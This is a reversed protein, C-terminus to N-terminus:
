LESELLGQIAMWGGVGSIAVGGYITPGFAQGGFSNEGSIGGATYYGAYLGQVPEGNPQLVQMKPNVRLGCTTKCISGGNPIGYYPPNELPILWEPFYPIPLETDEGTACLENWRDVAGVVVDPELGMLVALEEITDAKQIAGRDVAQQFDGEWDTTCYPNDKTLGNPKLPVRSQDLGMTREEFVDLSKKFNSDLIAYTRHGITSMWSAANTLDGMSFTKMDYGPQVNQGFEVIHFPLRAGSKNIRLWPNMTVQRAGNWFYHWYAGDGKGWYDDLGGEWNSFSNYGSTDAGAGIGMRFCDGTHTPFPGGQVSYMYATPTYQELLDLNYGFGGATFIVGLNAKLFLEANDQDSIQAGIIRDGDKVLAKCETQLRVDAGNDRSNKELAEVTPQNGLVNNRTGEAIERQVFAAGLCVWDVGPQVQIWEAWEVGRTITELLLDYDVSYHNYQQYRTAAAFPDYKDGPWSYGREIQAKTGGPQIMNGASHRACGGTLDSKELLAVSYGNEAAYATATLGGYGSGVVIIDYEADWNAPVGVPPIPTANPGIKGTQIPLPGAGGNVPPRVGVQIDTSGVPVSNVGDSGSGQSPTDTTCGSLGATAVTAGGAIFAANRLFQRRSVGSGKEESDKEEFDKKERDM